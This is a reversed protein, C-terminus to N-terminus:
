NSFKFTSLIQNFISETNDNTLKMQIVLAPYETNNTNIIAAIYGKETIGIPPMGEIVQNPNSKVILYKVQNQNITEKTLESPMDIEANTYTLFKYGAGSKKYGVCGYLYSFGGEFTSKVSTTYLKVLSNPSDNWYLNSQSTTFNLEESPNLQPPMKFSMKLQSLKYTKWNAMPDLETTNSPPPNNVQPTATPFIQNQGDNVATQSKPSQKGLYYGGFGFVVFCVLIVGTMALYNVKPKEPSLPPQNIPNQGIQQTNQDGVNMQNEM